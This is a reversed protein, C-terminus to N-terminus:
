RRAFYRRSFNSFSELKNVNWCNSLRFRIIEFKGLTPPLPNYFFHNCAREGKRKRKGAGGVKRTDKEKADEGVIQSGPIPYTHHSGFFSLFESWPHYGQDTLNKIKYNDFIVLNRKALQICNVGSLEFRWPFYFFTRTIPLEYFIASPLTFSKLWM